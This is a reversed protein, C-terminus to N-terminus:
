FIYLLFYKENLFFVLNLLLRYDFKSLQFIKIIKEEIINKIIKIEAFIKNNNSIIQNSTSLIVSQDIEDYNKDM